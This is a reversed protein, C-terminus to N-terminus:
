NSIEIFTWGKIKASDIKEVKEITPSSIEMATINKLCPKPPCLKRNYVDHWNIGDFWPHCKIEEADSIGAGM